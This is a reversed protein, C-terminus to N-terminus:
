EKNRAYQAVIWTSLLPMSGTHPNSMPGLADNLNYAICVFIPPPMVFGKTWTLYGSSLSLLPLPLQFDDHTAATMGPFITHIGHDVHISHM